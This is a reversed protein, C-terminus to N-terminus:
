HLVPALVLILGGALYVVFVGVTFSALGRGSRASALWLAPVLTSPNVCDALAISAVILTLALM